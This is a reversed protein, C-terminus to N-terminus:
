QRAELSLGALGGGLWPSLAVSPRSRSAETRKPASIVLVLGTAALVAGGIFGITSITRFRNYGAVDDDQSPPCRTDVCGDLSSRQSMALAGTVGGVVLGAGGVGLAVFGLTRATGSSSPRDAEIASPAVPEAEARPAPAAVADFRFVVTQTEGERLTREEIQSRGSFTAELKVSGPDVLRKVGLISSPVPVGNVSVSVEDDKAGEVRIVIGPIRPELAAHETEADAQAKKQVAVDGGGTDLRQVELYREAAVVLKGSKELARASWLGLSPVRLARYARDLKDSAPGFKGAQLDNIGEYGLSRAASRTADDTDKAHAVLPIGVMLVGALIAGFWRYM